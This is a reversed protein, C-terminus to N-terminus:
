NFEVGEDDQVYNQWPRAKNNLFGYDHIILSHLVKMKKCVM